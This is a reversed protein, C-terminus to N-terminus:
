DVERHPEACHASRDIEHELSPDNREVFVDERTGVRYVTCGKLGLAHADQFITAIDAATASRDLLITKSIAGDVRAQIEAQMALHDDPSIARADSFWEPLACPAAERERWLRYAYDDATFSRASGNPGLVRRVIELAFIPEVGSSVNNALLSITGAPAIALLHSNRIGHRALEAQLHRPLSQIFPREAHKALDLDPFAGRERALDISAAYASDRITTMVRAVTSRAEASAYHLRLMALADGLGTIGIGIRRTARARQAQRFLPYRSADIIDDLFRVALRTAAELAALDLHATPTFPARVFRVLNLSGLHCAGYEPLPTEGCPNTASLTECYALNNASNIRDIFLMGPEGSAHASRCIADWLERARITKQAAAGPPFCLPWPADRAVARMFADSVLLSLNFHPLDHLGRKADVFELVDPHDCRLTAMMAGRRAGSSMVTACASDFVKLFSVPGTATGGTSKAPTGRPRLASFDYGVGGGQQMTLAAEKLTEFIGTVSDEIPGMVFCNALTVARTTGAGALIRGGPIFQFEALLAGFREAYREPEPDVAAAARAVRQWTDDISQEVGEATTARYRTEWVYQALPTLSTRM